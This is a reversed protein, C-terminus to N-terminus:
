QEEEELMKRLADRLEIACLMEDAGREDAGCRDPDRLKYLNLEDIIWELRQAYWGPHEHKFVDALPAVNYRSEIQQIKNEPM